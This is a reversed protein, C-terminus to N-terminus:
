CLWSHSWLEKWIIVVMGSPVRPIIAAM